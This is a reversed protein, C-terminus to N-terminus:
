ETKKKSDPSLNLVFGLQVFSGGLYGVEGFLGINNFIFYNLGAQVSYGFEGPVNTSSTNLNNQYKSYIYGCGGGVYPDLKKHKIFHYNVRVLATFIKLQDSFSFGNYNYSGKIKSYSIIAGVNFHKIVEREYELNFPGSSKVVYNDINVGKELFTKWVNGIGHGISLTQTHKEVLKKSSSQAIVLTGWFLQVVIIFLFFRLRNALQYM